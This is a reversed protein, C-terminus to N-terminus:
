EYKSLLKRLNEFGKSPDALYKMINPNGKLSHLYYDFLGRIEDLEIQGSQRLYALFEFFNLYDTFSSAEEEVIEAIRASDPSDLEDRTAKLDIQEYFKDYLVKVWRARELKANQHYTWAAWLGAVLAAVATVIETIAKAAEIGPGM